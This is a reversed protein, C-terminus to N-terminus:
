KKSTNDCSCVISVVTTFYWSDILSFGEILWFGMCGVFIIVLSNALAQRLTLFVYKVAKLKTKREDIIEDLSEDFSATSSCSVSHEDDSTHGMEKELAGSFLPAKESITPPPAVTSFEASFRRVPGEDMMPFGSHNASNNM